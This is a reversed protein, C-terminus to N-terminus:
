NAGYGINLMYPIIYFRTNPFNKFISSHFNVHECDDVDPNNIDEGSYYSNQILYTKYITLGGFASLVELYNLDKSIINVPLWNKLKWYWCNDNYWCNNNKRKTRLAWLDYYNDSFQNISAIDWYNSESLCKNVSNVDLESNVNDLDMNIYYDYTKDLNNDFIYNLIKNRCYALRVTRRSININESIVIGNKDSVFNQLLKLTNDKSDNEYFIYFVEKDKSLEYINNLTKPLFEACDRACGCIIVKTKNETFNENYICKCIIGIIVILIIVLIIIILIM